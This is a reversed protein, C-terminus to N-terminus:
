RSSPAENSIVRYLLDRELRDDLFTSSLLRTSDGLSPIDDRLPEPPPIMAAGQKVLIGRGQPHVVFMRLSGAAAAGLILENIHDDSFSYGIVVLRTDPMTLYRRFEDHYWRLVGHRAILAPKHAGIVLLPEAGETEWNSSGHLKFYPQANPRLTHDSTPHWKSRIRDVELMADPARAERMGPIYWGEPYFKSGIWVAPNNNLYHFELLLDQNLTFIADFRTLYKQIMFENDNGFEMGPRRLFMDNMSHFVAKVVEQMRHLRATTKPNPTRDFDAQVIGVVTEFDHRQLLAQLYHDGQLRTSLESRVESSLRGKWNHSFGAALLLICNM